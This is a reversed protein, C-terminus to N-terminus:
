FELLDLVEALCLAFIEEMVDKEAQYAGGFSGDGFFQRLKNAEMAPQSGLMPKDGEPLEVVQTFEFAESWNAHSKQLGHKEAVQGVVPSLWWDYWQITMEPLQNALQYSFTQAVRNGGHGNLV